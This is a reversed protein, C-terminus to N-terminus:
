VIAPGGLPRSPWASTGIQDSRIPLVVQEDATQLVVALPVYLDRRFPRYLLVDADRVDKVRRLREWGGRVRGHM